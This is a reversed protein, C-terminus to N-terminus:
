WSFTLVKFAQGMQGVSLLRYLSLGLNTLNKSCSDQSTAIVGFLEDLNQEYLFDRQTQLSSIPFLQMLAHFDVQHTIDCQGLNSMMDVQGSISEVGM